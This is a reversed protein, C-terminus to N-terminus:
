TYILRFSKEGEIDLETLISFGVNEFIKKSYINRAKVYANIIGSPHYLRWNCCAMFIMKSGLSKGRHNKDISIGIVIEDNTNEIRVQGIAVDMKDYFILMQTKSDNIKQNFWFIHNEKLIEQKQYSFDRVVEDNAWEFYLDLDKPEALKFYISSFKYSHILIDINKKDVTIGNKIRKEEFFGNNLLVEYLKPRLDYAYTFIREINLFNNVIKKLIKLYIDWDNIFIEERLSRNTETLFSIEASKNIWDIHVLGGYGILKKNYLFSFLIQEPQEEEFLKNVVNKFYLSQNEETLIENQRLISVQDNRWKMIDFKDMDRIPVLSYNSESWSTVNRFIKYQRFV